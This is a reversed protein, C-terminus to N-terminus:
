LFIKQILSKFDEQSVTEDKAELDTKNLLMEISDKQVSDTTYCGDFLTKDWYIELNGL